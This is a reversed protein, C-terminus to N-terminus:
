DARGIEELFRAVAIEEVPAAVILGNPELRAGPGNQRNGIRLLSVVDRGDRNPSLTGVLEGIHNDVVEVFHALLRAPLREHETDGQVGVDDTLRETQTMETAGQRM